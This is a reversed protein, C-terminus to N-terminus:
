NILNLSKKEDMDIEYPHIYVVAPRRKQVYKIGLGTYLCPFHRM